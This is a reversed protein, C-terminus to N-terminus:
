DSYNYKSNFAKNMKDFILEKTIKEYDYLRVLHLNNEQVYTIKLNDRLKQDKFTKVDGHFHGVFKYHQRGQCEFFCLLDKLYFDFFLRTGKYYIYHEKRIVNLPFAEKLIAYLENAISSM